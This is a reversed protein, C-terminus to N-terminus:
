VTGKYQYGLETVVQEIKSLDIDNGSIKVTATNRDAYVDDIGDLKLLNRTVSGECHSCTMGEVKITKFTQTPM